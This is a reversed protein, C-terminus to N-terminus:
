PLARVRINRFEVRDGHDQLGIHGEASRAFAPMGAFKSAAIRADWDASGIEFQFLRSGNLWHEGSNGRMLVRAQNWEGAPRVIGRPAPYLGFLSGASTLESRGDAHAADDLVQMELASEWVYRGAENGRYFIGSNAGPAVKWELELEFDRFTEETIIDGAGDAARVLAGDIVQWGDSVYQSRYGRWGTTSVGDFLTRWEGAPAAAFATDTVNRSTTTGASTGCASAFLGALLLFARVTGDHVARDDM